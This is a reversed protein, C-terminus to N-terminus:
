QTDNDGASPLTVQLSLFPLLDVLFVRALSSWATYMACISADNTGEKCAQTDTSLIMQEFSQGSLEAAITSLKADRLKEMILDSTTALDNEELYNRIGYGRNEPDNSGNMLAEALDLSAYLSEFTIGSLKHEISDVCNTESCSHHIGMPSAIKEDKIVELQLIANLIDTLASESFNPQSFRSPFNEAQFSGVLRFTQDLVRESLAAAVECRDKKKKSEDQELWRQVNERVQQPRCQTGLDDSYLLYEITMLGQYNFRLTEPLSNNDMFHAVSRDIQCANLRPYSYILDLTEGNNDKIPGIALASMKHFSALTKTWVQTLDERSSFDSQCYGSIQGQLQIMETLFDEVRPRLVNYSINAVVASDSYESENITEFYSREFTTEGSAGQLGGSSGNMFPEQKESEFFDSCSTTTLLIFCALLIRKM